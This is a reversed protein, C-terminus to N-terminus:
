ADLLDVILQDGIAPEEMWAGNTRMCDAWAKTAGAPDRHEVATVFEGFQRHARRNGKTVGPLNEVKATVVPQLGVRIWRLIESLVALAPNDVAAFAVREAEWWAAVFTAADDTVTGLERETRRLRELQKPPAHLAVVGAIEPEIMRLARFCDAVTARRAELVAGTRKAAVRTAPALITAGGRDGARLELLQETELVRLAERLTPRSIGFEQALEPLAALRDGEHLSGEAIRSRFEAAVVQARRQSPSRGVSEAQARWLGTIDIPRRSTGRSVLVRATTSLYDSWAERALAADNRRLADLFASHGVIVRRAIREAAAADGGGISAYVQGAYIDRFVGAIVAITHNASHDTVSQDFASMASVFALPDGQVAREAEHLSGLAALAAPRNEVVVRAAAAPEVVSRVEELHALTTRRRQLLLAVYRSAADLGPLRVVVGGGRGRKVEVLEESELIRLAERLTDRSVNLTAVLEPEHPLQRDAALEGALIQRRLDAALLHSVKHGNRGTLPRLALDDAASGVDHM